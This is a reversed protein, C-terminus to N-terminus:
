RHRRRARGVPLPPPAIRLGHAERGNAGDRVEFEVEVGKRLNHADVELALGPRDVYLREGESSSLAGYGKVKNFWLVTGSVMDLEV